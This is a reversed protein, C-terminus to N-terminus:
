RENLGEQVKAWACNCDPKIRHDKSCEGYFCASCLDNSACNNEHPLQKALNLRETLHAVTSADAKLHDNEERLREGDRKAADLATQLRKNESVLWNFTEQQDMAM